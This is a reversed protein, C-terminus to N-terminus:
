RLDSLRLVKGNEIKVPQQDVSIWVDIASPNQVIEQNATFKLARVAKIYDYIEINTAYWIEENGSMRKCFEEIMGWNGDNSFEYSHGWVYM